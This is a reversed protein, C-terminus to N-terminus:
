VNEASVGDEILEGNGGDFATSFIVMAIQM